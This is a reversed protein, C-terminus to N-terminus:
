EKNAKQTKNYRYQTWLRSIGALLFGFFVLTFAYPVGLILAKQKVLKAYEASKQTGNKLADASALKEIDKLSPLPKFEGNEKKIFHPYKNKKLLHNKFVHEFMSSGFVTYFVVLPVRTWVELQDLKGRDRGAASYGFLGVVTSILLQGKSLGLNLEGKNNKDISFDPTIYKKLFNKTKQSNLGIKELGKAIHVGPQLLVESFKQLAASKHGYKALAIGSVIGGASILGFKKFHSYASQEVFKQHKKDEKQEENLNAINNFDSKKFVKLTFLNKAFSLAYEGAPIAACALVIGAKTSLARKSNKSTDKILEDTNKVIHQTIQERIEKPHLKSFANKFFKGLVAPAFFFLAAETLELFTQESIDAVSRAFVAKPTLNTVECQIFRTWKLDEQTKVFFKSARTSFDGKNKFSPQKQNNLNVLNIKTQMKEKVAGVSIDIFFSGAKIM